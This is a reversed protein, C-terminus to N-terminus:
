RKKWFTYDPYSVKSQRQSIRSVSPITRPETIPDCMQSLLDNLEMRTRKNEGSTACKYGGLWNEKPTVADDWQHACGVVLVGGPKLVETVKKLFTKPERITEVVNDAFIVDFHGLKNCDLNAFDAQIFHCKHADKELNFHSLNAEHYDQIEGDCPVTYRVVSNQALAAAHQITRATPDIGIIDWDFRRAVEFCLRGVSCGFHAFRTKTSNEVHTLADNQFIEEIIRSGVIPLTGINNLPDQYGSALARIECNNDGYHNGLEQLIRADTEVTDGM